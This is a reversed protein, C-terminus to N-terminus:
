NTRELFDITFMCFDRFDKQETAETVGRWLRPQHAIEERRKRLKRLQEMDEESKLLNNDKCLRLLAPFPIYDIVQASIKEWNRCETPSIWDNLLTRLRINAHLDALLLASIYDPERRNLFDNIRKTVSITTEKRESGKGMKDM